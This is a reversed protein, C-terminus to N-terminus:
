GATDWFKVNINIGEWKFVKFQYDLGITSPLTENFENSIYRHVLNTKGVNANGIVLINIIQDVSETM